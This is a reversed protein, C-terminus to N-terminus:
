YLLYVFCTKDITWSLWINEICLSNRYNRVDFGQGVQPSWVLGTGTTNLTYVSYLLELIRVVCIKAASQGLIPPSAVRLKLM